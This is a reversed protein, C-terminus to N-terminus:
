MSAKQSKKDEVSTLCICPNRPSIHVKIAMKKRAHRTDQNWEHVGQPAVRLGCIRMIEETKQLQLSPWPTGHSEEGLLQGRDLL